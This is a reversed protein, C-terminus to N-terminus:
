KAQPTLIAGAPVSGGNLKLEEIDKATYVRKM